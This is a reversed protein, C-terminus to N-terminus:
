YKRLNENNAKQQKQKSENRSQELYKFGLFESSSRSDLVRKFSFSDKFPLSVLNIQNYVVYMNVSHHM